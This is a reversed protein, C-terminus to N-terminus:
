TAPPATSARVVLETAFVSRHTTPTTGHALDIVMRTATAAMDRLPQRVTTLAPIAWTATPLDDFGVVSLDEPIRLGLRHAAQYVGIAQADNFAFVATPPTPRTLLDLGHALGNELHFGGERVLDPDFAIGATELAARYGDLRARSPLSLPPGTIAAIRRHGLRLLHRTAALGGGWNDGTASPLDPDPEGIPDVIALPIGRNRLQDLQARAPGAFVAVVGTPRRGIVAEIWNRGPAPRAELESVVLALQHEVAVREVGKIVEMGYPGKVEHLLLEVLTARNAKKKQRRYGHEHIVSWVAARTDPAVDARGNVVKSVTAVSVGALEAIQAITAGGGDPTTIM